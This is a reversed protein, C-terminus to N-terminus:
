KASQHLPKEYFLELGKCVNKYVQWKRRMGAPMEPRVGLGEGCSLTAICRGQKKSKSFIPTDCKKLGSKM